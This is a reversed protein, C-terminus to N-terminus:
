SAISTSALHTSVRNQIFAPALSTAEVLTDIDEERVYEPHDERVLSILELYALVLQESTRAPALGVSYEGIALDTLGVELPTRSPTNM